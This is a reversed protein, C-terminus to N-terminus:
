INGYHNEQIRWKPDYSGGPVRTPDLLRYGPKDKQALCSIKVTDINLIHDLIWGLRRATAISLRMAYNIIKNLDVREINEKYAYIVEQMGGCYQPQNLGDLLTRELDTVKFKGDGIWEIEEGFFKAKKICVFIYEIGHISVATKKDKRGEQPVFVSNTTTITVTNRIVQDTLGHFSFASRHSIMAPEVLAMAIEYEHIPTSTNTVQYIGRRIQQLWKAKCLQHLLNSLTQSNINLDTTMNKELNQRRFVRFSQELIYQMLRMKKSQNLVINERKM